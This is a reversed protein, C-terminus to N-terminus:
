LYKWLICLCGEDGPCSCIGTGGWAPPLDAGVKRFDEQLLFYWFINFSEAKIHWLSLSKHHKILTARGGGYKKIQGQERELCTVGMQGVKMGMHREMHFLFSVCCYTKEKPHILSVWRREQRPPFCCVLWCFSWLSSSKPFSHSVFSMPALTETHSYSAWLPEKHLTVVGPWVWEEAGLTAGGELHHGSCM